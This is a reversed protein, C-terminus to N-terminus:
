MFSLSVNHVASLYSDRSFKVSTLGLHAAAYEKQELPIYSVICGDYYNQLAQMLLTHQFIICGIAYLTDAETAKWNWLYQDPSLPINSFCSPELDVCGFPITFLLLYKVKNHVTVLQNPSLYPLVIQSKTFAISIMM